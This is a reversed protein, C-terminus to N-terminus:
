SDHSDIGMLVGWPRRIDRRCGGVVFVGRGCDRAYLKALTMMIWFLRLWFRDVRLVGVGVAM